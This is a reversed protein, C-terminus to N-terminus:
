ASTKAQAKMCALIHAVRESRAFREGCIMCQETLDGRTTPGHTKIHVLIQSRAFREGCIKCQDTAEVQVVGQTGPRPERAVLGQVNVPSKGVKMGGDNEPKHGFAWRRELLMQIRRFGLYTDEPQVGSTLTPVPSVSEFEVMAAEQAAQLTHQAEEYAQVPQQAAQETAELTVEEQHLTAKAEAVAANRRQPMEMAQQKRLARRRRWQRRKLGGTLLLGCLLSASGAAILPVYQEAQNVSWVSHSAVFAALPSLVDQTHHLVLIAVLALVVTCTVAGKALQSMQFVHKDCHRCLYRDWFAKSHCRDCQEGMLEAKNLTERASTVQKKQEHVRAQADRAHPESLQIAALLAPFYEDSAAALRAEYWQEIRDPLARHENRCRRCRPVVIDAYQYEIGSHFLLTVQQVDGCMPVTIQCSDDATGEGCFYCVRDAPLPEFTHRVGRTKEGKFKDKLTRTNPISCDIDRAIKRLSQLNKQVGPDGPDVEEALLLYQLASSLHQRLISKQREIQSKHEDGCTNCMFLPVDKYTFNIWSTYSSRGCCLCPPIMFSSSDPTPRRALTLALLTGDMGRLKGLLKSLIATDGNYANLAENGLDIGRRSLCCALCRRLPKGSKPDLVVLVRIAGDYDGAREKEYAAELQAVTEEPLEWYGPAYWDNGAKVNERLIGINEALQSRVSEGVALEQALQLLTIGEQWHNTKKGFAVQGELMTEAVMDHLGARVLHDPPLLADVVALLSKAQEHLDRVDQNGHQPTRSWRSKAHDTATTIRNRIPKLAERIAEDAHAAGFNADQLLRMHRQARATDSREAANYAMQANILLLATPLTGHIRRVVGTTLQVDNLDRVRNKVVSWFEEGDLVAKWRVFARRWLDTVRIEQETDLRESALHVESDLAMLHDLVALNHAAIQGQGDESSQAMWLEVAREVQGEQLAYLAPDAAGNGNTPWFWFVEDLLRELPRHLRELAARIDEDTPLPKLALPGDDGETSALGLNAQMQRKRQQREVDRATAHVSLGLVRFLNRRYLHPTTLELLPGCDAPHENM